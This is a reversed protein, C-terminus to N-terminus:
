SSKSEAHICNAEWGCNFGVGSEGIFVGREPCIMGM